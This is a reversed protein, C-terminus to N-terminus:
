SLARTLGRPERPPVTDLGASSPGGSAGEPTASIEICPGAEPTLSSALFSLWAGARWTSCNGRQYLPLLSTHPNGFCGGFTEMRTCRSWSWSGRLVSTMALGVEAGDVVVKCAFVVKPYPSCTSRDGKLNPRQPIRERWQSLPLPGPVSSYISALYCRIFLPSFSPCWSLCLALFM